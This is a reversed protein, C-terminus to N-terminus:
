FGLRTGLALEYGKFSYQFDMYFNLFPGFRGDAPIIGISGVGIKPIFHLRDFYLRVGLYRGFPEWILSGYPTNEYEEPYVTELTDYFQRYGLEVTYAPVGKKIRISGGYRRNRSAANYIEDNIYFHMSEISFSGFDFSRTGLTNNFTSVLQRAWNGGSGSQNLGVISEYSHFFSGIFPIHSIDIDPGLSVFLGSIELLDEGIVPSRFWGTKGDFTFIGTKIILGTGLLDANGYVVIEESTPKGSSDSGHVIIKESDLLVTAAYFPLTFYDNIRFLCAYSANFAVIGYEEDEYSKHWLDKGMLNFTGYHSFSFKKGTKDVDNYLRYATTENQLFSLINTDYELLHNIDAKLVGQGGVLIMYILLIGTKNKM